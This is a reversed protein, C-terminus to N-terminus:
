DEGPGFMQSISIIEASSESDNSINLTSGVEAFANKIYGLGITEGAGPLFGFSTINGVEEGDKTLVCDAESNVNSSFKVKVLRRQIKQYTDLRAIVEQGIYCGKHFNISGILGAELPNYRDGLERGYTPLSKEVRLTDFTSNDIEMTGSKSLLSIFYEKSENTTIIDISPLDAFPRCILTFSHGNVVGQTCNYAPLDSIDIGTVDNVISSSAPGIISIMSTNETLNDVTLDEMITYKDLWEIVNNEEGPSTLIIFHEGTNLVHIVDLIRGRDTTLITHTGQGPNLDLVLNTSLRNILDLADEGTAQLRGVKSNDYFVANSLAADYLDQDASTYASM